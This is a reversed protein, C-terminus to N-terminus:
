STGSCTGGKTVCYCGLSTEVSDEFWMCGGCPTSTGMWIASCCVFSNNCQLNEGGCSEGECAAGYTPCAGSDCDQCCFLPGHEEDTSCVLDGCEGCDAYCTEDDEGNFDNCYGDECTGLCNGRVPDVPTGGYGGCTNEFLDVWCPKNCEETPGCVQPDDCFDQIGVFALMGRHGTTMLYLGVMLLFALNRVHQNVQM